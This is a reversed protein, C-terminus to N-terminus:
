SHEGERLAELMSQVLSEIEELSDETQFIDVSKDSEVQEIAEIALAVLKKHTSMSM